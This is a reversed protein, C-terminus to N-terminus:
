YERLGGEGGELLWGGLHASAEGVESKEVLSEALVVWRASNWGDGVFLAHFVHTSIAETGVEGM